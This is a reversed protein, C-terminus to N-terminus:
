SKLLESIDVWAIGRTSPDNQPHHICLILKKGDPFFKAHQGNYAPDTVQKLTADAVNHLYIAYNVGNQRNSEFVITQGDPSWSPARGQYKADFSSLSAPSEMPSSHVTGNLAVTNLFIYNADEDYHPQSCSSNGWGTVAPQGAFAIHPLDGSGMAPMGGFLPIGNGANGDVNAFNLNGSNDFISNCPVPSAGPGHNETVFESGDISWRPYFAGRTNPIKQLNTKGDGDVQWVRVHGDKSAAGNFAVANTKWCCDPRTQWPPPTPSEATVFPVPASDHSWIDNIVYLTTAGGNVSTREFIVTKGTADMTPRYDTYEPDSTLFRLEPLSTGM